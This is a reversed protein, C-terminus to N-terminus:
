TLASSAKRDLAATFTRIAQARAVAVGREDERDLATGVVTYVICLLIGLAYDHVADAFSYRSVGASMLRQYWLRLIALEHRRRDNSRLSQCLLYAVDFAGRGRCALQWDAVVIQPRHPAGFYLNDARFDGHIITLPPRSLGALVDDVHSGVCEGLAASGIPLDDGHMSVFAPWQRQYMGALQQMMPSDLLPMWRLQNLAQEEWWQAHPAAIQSVALSAREPGLGTIQDGVQLHGLDELLLVSEGTDADIEGCYCRPVRLRLSPAVERYFRAERVYLDFAKARSRNAAVGSAAKLILSAPEGPYRHSYTLRLRTLQGFVGRGTGVPEQEVASLRGGISLGARNLTGALWAVSVAAPRSAVTRTAPIAM